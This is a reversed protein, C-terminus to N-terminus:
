PKPPEIGGRPVLMKLRKHAKGEDSIAGPYGLPLRIPESVGEGQM